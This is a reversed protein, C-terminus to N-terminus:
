RATGRASRRSERRAERRRRAGRVGREALWVAVIAGAADVAADAVSPTREPTLRQHLEDAVGYLVTLIVAYRAAGPVWYSDLARWVLFGLLGFLLFHAAVSADIGVPGVPAVWARSSEWFIFAAVAAPPLWSRLLSPKPRM